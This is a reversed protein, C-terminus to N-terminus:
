KPVVKGITLTAPKRYQDFDVEGDVEPLVVVSVEVGEPAVVRIHGAVWKSFSVFQKDPVHLAISVANRAGAPHESTAESSRDPAVTHEPVGDSV